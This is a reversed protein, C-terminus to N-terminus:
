ACCEAKEASTDGLWAALAKRYSAESEAREQARRAAAQARLREVTEWVFAPITSQPASAAQRAREAAAAADERAFHEQLRVLYAHYEEKSANAPPKEIGPVGVSSCASNESIAGDIAERKAFLSTDCRLSHRLSQGDERPAEQAGESPLASAPRPSEGALLRVGDEPIAGDIAERKAFLPARLGGGTASAPRLLGLSAPLRELSSQSRLSAGMSFQPVTDCRLSHRLSQEGARPREEACAGPAQIPYPNTVSGSEFKPNSDPYPYPNPYPNSEPPCGATLQCCSATLHKEGAFFEGGDAASLSDEAALPEEEDPPAPFKRRKNRVRQEEEWAPFCLYPMGGAEYARLLGLAVMHEIARAIDDKSIDERTPFLTNKLLVIRGDLCGYDDVSVTLRHYVVEEFWNLQEMKPCYKISEHLIRNPM